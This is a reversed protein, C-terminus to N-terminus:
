VGDGHKEPVYDGQGKTCPLHPTTLPAGDKKEGAPRGEGERLSGGWPVVMASGRGVLSGVGLDRSEWGRKRRGQSKRRGERIRVRERLAGGGQSGGGGEKGYSRGRKVEMLVLKELGRGSGWGGRGGLGVEGRGLKQRRGQAGAGWGRGAGAAAPPGTRGAPGRQDGPTRAADAPGPGWRRQCPASTPRRPGAVGM